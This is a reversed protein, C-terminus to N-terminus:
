FSVVGDGCLSDLIGDLSDIQFRRDLVIHSEFHTKPQRESQRRQSTESLISFCILNFLLLLFSKTSPTPFIPNLKDPHVRVRHLLLSDIYLLIPLSSPVKSKCMIDM